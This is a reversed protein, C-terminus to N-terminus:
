SSTTRTRKAKYGAKAETLQEELTVIQKKARRQAAELEEIVEQYKRESRLRLRDAEEVKANYQPQMEALTQKRTAEQAEPLAKQLQQIRANLRQREAALESTLSQIEKELRQREGEGETIRPEYQARMEQYIESRVSDQANQVDNELRKIQLALQEREMGWHIKADHFEREWQEATKGGTPLKGLKELLARCQM